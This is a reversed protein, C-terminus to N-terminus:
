KISEWLHSRRQFRAIDLDWTSEGLQYVPDSREAKGAMWHMHEVVSEPCDVFRGRAQATYILERESFNHRYGDHIIAGTGDATGGMTDIYNRSVLPLTGFDSCLDNVTVVGDVTKM